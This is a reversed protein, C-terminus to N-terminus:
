NPNRDSAPSRRHYDKLLSRSSQLVRPINLPLYYHTVISGSERSHNEERICSGHPDDPVSEGCSTIWKLESLPTM